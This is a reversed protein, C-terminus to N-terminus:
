GSSDEETLRKVAEIRQKAALSRAARGLGLSRILMVVLLEVAVLAVGIANNKTYAVVLALACFALTVLYLITVVQKRSRAWRQLQHHVHSQDPSFMAFFRSTVGSHSRGQFRVAMVLLTDMVPLGLALIPVLIAVTASAKISSHVCMAALLFGLTLAGADGMFIRAPAWNQQLFGLCAGGVAAMLILSGPNEQLFAYVSMSAAIIAVVGSALGDLGDVLNIANTVGVLWLITVIPGLSGLAVAHGGPVGLVSFRWGAGVVVLAAVSEALFKTGVSLGVLDDVLGTLFVIATAIVLAALENRSLRPGVIRWATVTAAGAGLVLGGAIALGGLRPTAQGHDRRGGPLDFVRASIAIRAVLPVLLMTVLASVAAAVAAHVLIFPVGLQLLDACNLWAGERVIERRWHRGQRRNAAAKM